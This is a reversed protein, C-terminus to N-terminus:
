SIVAVGGCPVPPQEIKTGPLRLNGSRNRRLVTSRGERLRVSLCPNAPVVGDICRLIPFADESFKRKARRGKSGSLRNGRAGSDARKQKSRHSFSAHWSHRNLFRALFENALAIGFAHRKQGHDNIVHARLDVLAL